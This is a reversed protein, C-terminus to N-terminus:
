GGPSCFIYEGRSHVPRCNAGCHKQYAHQVDTTPICWNTVRVAVYSAYMSLQPTSTLIDWITACGNGGSYPTLPQYPAFSAVPPALPPAPPTGALEAAPGANPLSM